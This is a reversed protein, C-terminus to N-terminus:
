RRAAMRVARWRDEVSADEGPTVGLLGELQGLISLERAAFTAAAVVFGGAFALLLDPM